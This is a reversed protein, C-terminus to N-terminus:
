KNGGMSIVGNLIKTFLKLITTLWRMLSVLKTELTPNEETVYLWEFSDCNEETMPTVYCNSAKGKKMM